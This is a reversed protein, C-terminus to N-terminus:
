HILQRVRCRIVLMRQIEARRMMATLIKDYDQFGGYLGAANRGMYFSTHNSRDNRTKQRGV